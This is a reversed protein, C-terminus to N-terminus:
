DDGDVSIKEAMLFTVGFRKSCFTAIEDNPDPEQGGFHNAPFGIIVLNDENMEHLAQLGAYQKTYGCESAVNVILIKKGKFDAFSKETGDILNFLFEHISQQAMSTVSMVTFLALVLKKM